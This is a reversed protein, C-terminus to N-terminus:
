LPLEILFATGKNVESGISIKGGLTEVQAKVMYLGVGKGDTHFHFRKYLGFIEGGQKELDLGLGNDKFIFEIKAASLKSSIEIVPAENPQRYKISNSILNFFISHLYSKLTPMEDADSFDIHFVVAEKKIIHDISLQIDAIIESFRVMTKQENVDNKVQLILNLDIIVEDLKAVSTLLHRIMEKEDDQSLRSSNIVNGIGIINAVPARLNHSVIYTFQQLDKNRQILENTIKTREQEALKRETIDHSYCAAGIIEAGKHIPRYSIESWFNVPKGTHEIEIFTEGAFAREYLAKFHNSQEASIAGLLVSSGKTITKGVMFMVMDDFPLNSTILNFNRDVSWMLDQTNNILANLNNKDFDQQKEAAKKESIDRFNTILAKVSPEALLNTISAECWIWTGTKNRLRLETNFSKGPTKLIKDRKAVFAVMDDRHIFNAISASAIDELTYGFLKTVSPSGYLMQGDVTSLIIMDGSKEILARFRKENQVILEETAKQKKANEFLDLAYSIDGAVEELLKIEERSSFDANTGYLNLSGIIAGSKKIPLVICSDFGIRAAFPRWNEFGLDEQINHCLYYKGTRLVYDQPGNIEYPSNKFHDIDSIEIGCQEVLTIKKNALDFIGIWAMKFKGFELAMNCANYFLKREDKLRVIKQNVQSIFAYLHSIRNTEEEAQKQAAINNSIILIGEEIPKITIMFWSKSKDPTEEVIEYHQITREVMCQRLANFYTTHEINPYIATISHGLLQQKTKKLNKEAAANVFIFNWNVDIVQIGDPLLDLVQNYQINPTKINQSQTIDM